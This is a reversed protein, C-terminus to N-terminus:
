CCYSPRLYSELRDRLAPSVRGCHRTTIWGASFKKKKISPRSVGLAPKPGVFHHVSGERALEDATENGHIGAHGPVWFLGV